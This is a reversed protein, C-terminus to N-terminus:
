PRARSADDPARRLRGAITGPDGRLKARRGPVGRATARGTFPSESRARWSLLSRLAESRVQAVSADEALGVRDAPTIGDGGVLRMAEAALDPALALGATRAAALLRLERFEHAGAQIRELSAALGETGARPRQRLLTEVGVLATHAKLQSARVRFQSGILRVLEDLGSRRCLERALATPDTIGSSILVTALRLGFLGFRDLLGSRTDPTGLDTVSSRIFRDASILMREREVRDLQTLRVLCAFETQRLTRASQALLGAVPVVGMALSRVTDDNRYRLAIDRAAILSDISGAGIEDARSLVALANVADSQGAADRYSALSRLDAEHLHRM